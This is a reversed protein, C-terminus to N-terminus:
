FWPISGLDSPMRWDGRPSLSITGVKPGDPLTSRKYQQTAFRHLFVGLWHRIENETWPKDFKVQRALFLLKESSAGYRLFHYLFFDHLEYPGVTKETEQAFTGDHTFPLLEPSIPTEVIDLLVKQIPGDFEQRAAYEVLFKVLTKPISTNPNYMSMHDANFTCWGLALESMDGTGVVFGRNMLLMTRTRAQVNEFVLDPQGQKTKLAEMFGVLDMSQIDIGFPKHQLLKLQDLCSQRIDIRASGTKIQEMLTLANALTRSSTGFGPMTVADIWSRGLGLRDAVKACVLLALTSDLGGSVGIAVRELNLKEVRGALGVVQTQFIEHCREALTSPESPVFPHADVVRYFRKKPPGDGVSNSNMCCNRYRITPELGQGFSKMRLRDTQLKAIDVDALIMQSEPHFREGQALLSGNELIMLDGDFVLDTSSEGPGASAYVYGAICRASQATALIRRFPAKGLVANSASPNLILHAGQMALFGSPAQPVWLDECIEIGMGFGFPRQDTPDWKFVLDTGFPTGQFPGSELWGGQVGFGPSFHRQEYFESYNPLFSKPVIGKVVGGLVVAAVNYLKDGNAWPLGVVLAMHPWKESYQVVETFAKMAAKLLQPQLFLDGCTYGTLCLEGFLIVDAEQDQAKGALQLIRKANSAPDALAVKQRAAAVRVYGHQSITDSPPLDM